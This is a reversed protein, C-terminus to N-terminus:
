LKVSLSVGDRLPIITTFFGKHSFLLRTFERVGETGPSDDRTLVRGSWLVNDAILLGGKRLKDYAKDVVAPYYEKDIDNFIIDFGVPSEELIGVANGVLIDIRDRLGAKNFFEEAIRANDRSKDTFTLSGSEGIAKALWYASYGFGSGLELVKKANCILATEYLLRGVLPGVIPFEDRRAHEEMEELVKDEAPTLSELYEEIEPNVIYKDDQQLQKM